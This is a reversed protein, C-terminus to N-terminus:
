DKTNQSASNKSMIDRIKLYYPLMQTCADPHADYDDM